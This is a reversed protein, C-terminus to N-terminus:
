SDSSCAIWVMNVELVEHSGSEHGALNCLSLEGPQALVAYRLAYLQRAPRQMASREVLHSRDRGVHRQARVARTLVRRVIGAQLEHVNSVFQVAVDSLPDLSTVLRRFWCSQTGILSGPVDPIENM